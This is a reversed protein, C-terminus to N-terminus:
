FTRCGILANAGPPAVDIAFVCMQNTGPPGPTVPVLGDYGHANGFGPYAQGVDARQRDATLVYGQGNVYVHVPISASTNPDIAWGAVRLGSPVESVLDLSGFPSGSGTVTVTRCGLLRNSGSGSANIAYACVSHVGAEAPISGRFGHNNGYGPFARGVDSRGRDATLALGTGAGYVHVPIPAATDPDIAWGSVDIRGNGGRVVDLSGFPDGTPLVVTRCGLYTNGGPGAKNIAYACVQQRGGGAPLVVDFGHNASWWPFASQVDSRAKSATVATGVGNVYIHVDPSSVTNPDLAWGAVRVQGPGASRVADLNGVPSGGLNRCGLGVNGGPGTNIAYVCVQRAGDPVPVTTSYGHDPGFGRYAVGVDNRTKSATTSHGQGDVYVHVSIPDTTDPDIAWGSVRASNPGEMAVADVSGFPNGASGGGGALGTLNALSCCFRNLDVNGVIGPVSGTSTYQWFTWTAWGSPVLPTFTTSDPNLPYSPLWLRYKAGIDTPNGVADRWFYYGTYVIPARGTLREVEALWIRAWQALDGKSLGGSEELDLVAPLDRAGSLSGTASVFYRAQDVASSLPLKPRAYHYAGRYLGAAAAGAFDTTYFPNRYTTGETAKVFAFSHGANRVQSWNIPAGNPHQDTPPHQWSAVDVGTLQAAAPIAAGGVIAVVVVLATALRRRARSPWATAKPRGSTRAPPNSM